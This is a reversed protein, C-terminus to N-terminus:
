VNLQEPAPPEALPVTETETADDPPAGVTVNVELAAETTTPEETVSDHDEVSAVVHLADPAQAPVLTVDPESDTPGTFEM